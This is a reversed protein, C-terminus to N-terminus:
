VLSEFHLLRSRIDPFPKVSSCALQMIEFNSFTTSLSFSPYDLIGLGILGNGLRATWGDATSCRSCWATLWWPEVVEEVNVGVWRVEMVGGDTSVDSAGEISILHYAWANPIDMGDKVSAKSSSDMFFSSVNYKIARKSWELWFFIRCFCQRSM